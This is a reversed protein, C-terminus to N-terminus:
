PSSPAEQREGTEADFWSAGTLDLDVRCEGGPPFTVDGPMRAYHLERSDLTFAIVTEAGLHEVVVVQGRLGGPARSITVKEARVGLLGGDRPLLNMPPSGTFRAVFTNAPRDYIEKPTGYQQIVGENMVIIRTGMTMAEVQDHTVYVFSKRVRQYLASIEARMQTRLKADLNSLPEDLLYLSPERVLARAVAVRQRQGGSLTKPRRDLHETLEMMAAVEEVKGRVAPDRLFRRRMLRNVVPFHHFWRFRSMLLPFAINARVTMHPYLAYSQFVFAIRRERPELGNVRVGDFELSGGSIDTLGAIMRLMTSKGCGSPGLLVLFEEDPVEADFNRIVSTDGFNKTIGDFRIRPM